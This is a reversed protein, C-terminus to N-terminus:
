PHRNCRPFHYQLIPGKKGETDHIPDSPDDDRVRRLSRRFALGMYVVIRAQGYASLACTDGQFWFLIWVGVSPQSARDQLATTAKVLQGWAPAASSGVGPPSYPCSARSITDKM